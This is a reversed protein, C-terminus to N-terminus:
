CDKAYLNATERKREEEGDRSVSAGRPFLSAM